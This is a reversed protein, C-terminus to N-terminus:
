LAEAAAGAVYGGGHIHLICPMPGAADKPRYILVEVDPAGVPGPIARRELSTRALDEPRVQFRAPRGRMLPLIEETLDFAHFSDLLPLLEPDVLDRNAAKDM